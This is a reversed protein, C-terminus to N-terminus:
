GMLNRQKATNYCWLSKSDERMAIELLCWPLTNFPILNVHNGIWFYQTVYKLQSNKAGENGPMYLGKEEFWRTVKEGVQRRKKELGVKEWSVLKKWWEDATARWWKWGTHTQFCFIHDIFKIFPESTYLTSVLQQHHKWLNFESM